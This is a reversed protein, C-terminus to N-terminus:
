AIMLSSIFCLFYEYAIGFPNHKKKWMDIVEWMTPFWFVLSMAVNWLLSCPYKIFSSCFLESYHLLVDQKMYSVLAEVERCSEESFYVTGTLYVDCSGGEAKSDCTLVMVRKAYEDPLELKMRELASIMRVLVLVRFRM